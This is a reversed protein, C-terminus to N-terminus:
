RAADHNRRESSEYSVRAWQAVISGLWATTEFEEHAMLTLKGSGEVLMRFSAPPNPETLQVKGEFAGPDGAPADLEERLHERLAPSYIGLRSLAGRVSRTGLEPVLNAFFDAEIKDM